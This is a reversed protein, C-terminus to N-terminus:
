RVTFPGVFPFPALSLVPHGTPPYNQQPSVSSCFPGSDPRIGQGYVSYADLTTSTFSLQVVLPTQDPENPARPIVVTDLAYGAYESFVEPNIGIPDGTCNNSAFFVEGKFFLEPAATALPGSSLWFLAKVNRNDIQYLAALPM